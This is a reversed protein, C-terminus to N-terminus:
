MILMLMMHTTKYADAVNDADADYGGGESIVMVILVMLDANDYM